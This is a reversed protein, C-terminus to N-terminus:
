SFLSVVYYVAVLGTFLISYGLIIKSIRLVKGAVKYREMYGYALIGGSLPSLILIGINQLSFHPTVVMFYLLSDRAIIWILLGTLFLLSPTLIFFELILFLSPTLSIKSM